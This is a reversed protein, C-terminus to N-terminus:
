NNEKNLPLKFFFNNLLLLKSSFSKSSSTCISLRACTKSRYLLLVTKSRLMKVQCTQPGRQVSSCSIRFSVLLGGIFSVRALQNCLNSTLNTSINRPKVIFQIRSKSSFARIDSVKAANISFILKETVRGRLRFLQVSKKLTSIMQFM